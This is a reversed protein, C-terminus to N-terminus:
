LVIHSPSSPNVEYQEWEKPQESKWAVDVNYTKGKITEFLPNNDEDFTINDLEDLIPIHKYEFGWVKIAHIDKSVTQREELELTKLLNLAKTKTSISYRKM